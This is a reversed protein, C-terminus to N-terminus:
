TREEMHQDPKDAAELPTWHVTVVTGGKRGHRVSLAAGIVRCRHRLSHFRNSNGSEGANDVSGIGDDSVKLEVGGRRASLALIIVQACGHKLANNASEQAIRYLNRAVLEDRIDVSRDFRTQVVVADLANIDAALQMLATILGDRGWIFPSLGHSIMRTHRIAENVLGSIKRASEAEQPVATALRGQLTKAMLSIGTLDQGLQDHLELGVRALEMEITMLVNRELEQRQRVEIELQRNTRALEDTRKELALETERRRTINRSVIQLRIAHDDTAFRTLHSEFWLYSGDAHRLRCTLMVPGGGQAVRGFSRLAVAKDEHHLLRRLSIPVADVDYGTVQGFSPSLFRVRGNTDHLSVIDLMNHTILRFQAESEALRREAIKMRTVDRGTGRYGVFRGNEDFRPRGSVSVYYERGDDQKVRVVLGTFAARQALVARHAAWGAESLGQPNAEWRTRGLLGQNSADALGTPGYSLLTFRHEFDTEWYWDSSVETLARFREESERLRQDAARRATVDRSSSQFHILRGNSDRVPVIITELWLWHGNRHRFRYELTAPKDGSDVFNAIRERVAQLDDPHVNVFPSLGISRRDSYGLLSRSSPSSWLMTGDASHLGVHEHMNDTILRLRAESEELKLQVSKADDIDRVVGRYGKIQGDAARVAEGSIELWRYTGDGTLSRREVRYANGFDVNRLQKRAAQKRDDPHCFREYWESMTRFRTSASLGFITDYAGFADIRDTEIDWYFHAMRAIRHAETLRRTTEMLAVEREREATIDRTVGSVGVVRGAKDVLPEAIVHIWMSRGSASRVRRVDDLRKGRAAAGVSELAAEVEDEHCYLAVWDRMSMGSPDEAMEYIARHQASFEVVDRRVDWYWSGMRGLQQAHELQKGRRELEIQILKTPTIDLTIGQFRLLRGTEDHQPKAITRIWRENGRATVIRRERDFEVGDFNTALLPVFSAHEDPPLFREGWEAMTRPHNHPETEYIAMMQPCTVLSGDAVEMTWTGLGAIEKAQTLQATRAAIAELADREATIDRVVGRAGIVRGLADLMPAVKYEIWKRTGDDLRLHQIGSAPQSPSFFAKIRREAEIDVPETLFRAVYDEGNTPATDRDVNYIDYYGQSANISGSALTAEWSGIKALQQAELLMAESHRLQHERAKLIVDLRLM